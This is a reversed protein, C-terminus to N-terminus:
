AARTVRAYGGGGRLISAAIEGTKRGNEEMDYVAGATLGYELYVSYWGYIPVRSAQVMPAVVQYPFYRRGDRDRYMTTYVVATDSDLSSLRRQLEKLSFGTWAEISSWRKKDKEAATIVQDVFRLDVDANGGVVVLSRADPQLADAIALTKTVDIRYPVTSFGAPLAHRSLWDEPVSSLLVRADPWVESHHRITFDAAYNGLGIVLDVHQHAYKKQMLALFEPALNESGFRFGDLTELFVETGQSTSAELANRIAQIQVLAAPQIPDAGTFLVVKPAESAFSHSALVLGVLVVRCKGRIVAMKLKTATRMLARLLRAFETEAFRKVKRAMVLRSLPGSGKMSTM